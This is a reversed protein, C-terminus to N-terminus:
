GTLLTKRAENAQLTVTYTRDFASPAIAYDSITFAEKETDLYVQLHIAEDTSNDRLELRSLPKRRSQAKRPTIIATYPRTPRRWTANMTFSANGNDYDATLATPANRM